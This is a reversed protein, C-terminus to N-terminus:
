MKIPQVQTLQGRQVLEQIMDFFGVGVKVHDYIYGKALDGELRM